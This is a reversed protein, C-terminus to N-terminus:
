LEGDDCSFFSGHSMFQGGKGIGVIGEFRVNVLLGHMQMVVLMVEGVDIPEVGGLCLERFGALLIVEGEHLVPLALGCKM